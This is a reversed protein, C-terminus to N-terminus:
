AAAVAAPAVAAPPAKSAVFQQFKAARAAKDLPARAKRRRHFFDETGLVYAIQLSPPMHSAEAHTPLSLPPSPLAARLRYCRGAGAAARGLGGGLWGAALSKAAGEGGLVWGGVKKIKQQMNCLKCELGNVMQVDDYAAAAAGELAAGAPLNRSLCVKAGAEEGEEAPPAASAAPASSSDIFGSIYDHFAPDLLGSYSPCFPSFTATLTPSLQHPPLTALLTPNLSAALCTTM